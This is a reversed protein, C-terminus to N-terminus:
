LIALDHLGIRLYYELFPQFCYMYYPCSKVFIYNFICIIFCFVFSLAFYWFILCLQSFYIFIGFEAILTITNLAVKLLIETIHHGARIRIQKIVAISM